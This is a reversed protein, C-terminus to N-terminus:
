GNQDGNISLIGDNIVIQDFCRALSRLQRNLKKLGKKPPLRGKLVWIKVESLIVDHEQEAALNELGIDEETCRSSLCAASAEEREGVTGNTQPVGSAPRSMADANGHSSDKRYCVKFDYSSLEVIWRGKRGTADNEVVISQPLNLLPKHDTIVTFPTGVLYHRVHRISWM